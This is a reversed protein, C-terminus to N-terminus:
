KAHFILSLWEWGTNAQVFAIYIQIFDVDLM